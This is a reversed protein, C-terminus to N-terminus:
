FKALIVYNKKSFSYKLHTQSIIICFCIINVLKVHLRQLDTVINKLSFTKWIVPSKYVILFNVSYNFTVSKNLEINYFTKFILM